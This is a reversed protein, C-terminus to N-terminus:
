LGTSERTFRGRGNHLSQSVESLQAIARTSAHLSAATQQAADRLQVIAENIQQAGQAQAQMGAHVTDFRPTLTQVQTIIQTLQTGVTRIAEAGQRVEYAFQDMGVVGASIASTMEKVIHEIDLTAEATQDALRRIERAVVAFGRGYQGAKEAEIAANLSLLNTQDAVKSITTVVSTINAAREQIMALRDAITRTAGDLTQMTAQMRVLSAQSSEAAMATDASMRAVDDMTQVLEQSTAAIERATAGLQHTSTTQATTMSELQKSSSTLQHILQQLQEEVAKKTSIDRLIATFMRRHGQQFESVALDVPFTSGDKRQGQVERSIGIMNPMGTTLYHRLGAQQADRSSPPTLMTLNRGLVEAAQYGFMREVAPNFSQILGASDMTILADTATDLIGHLRAESEEVRKLLAHNIWVMILGGGLVCLVGVASSFYIGVAAVVIAIVIMTAVSSTLVKLRNSVTSEEQALATHSSAAATATDDTLASVGRMTQALEQATAAIEKSTALVPNAGGDGNCRGAIWFFGSLM